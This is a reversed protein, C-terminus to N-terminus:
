LTSLSTSVDGQASHSADTPVQRALPEVLSCTDYMVVARIRGFTLAHSATAYGVLCHGISVRLELVSCSTTCSLERMCPFM